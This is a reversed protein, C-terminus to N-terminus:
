AFLADIDSQDVKDKNGGDGGFLADIQDQAVEPGALAPGNLLLERKRRESDTEELAQDEVGMVSAFREVRGEIHRLTEVIKQVRQGTIDQFSCAQFIELVKENVLDAFAADTPDAMMMAEAAAMITNTAEETHKVIAELEAGASPLRTERIDNPRLAAIEQRTRAIYTAIYRFEGYVDKDLSGFFMQMAEVLQESLNLVEVLRPDRLDTGKVANLAERVRQAVEIAPM